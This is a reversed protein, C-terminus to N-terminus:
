LFWRVLVLLLAAAVGATVVRYRGRLEPILVECGYYMIIIRAIVHGMRHSNEDLIPLLPMMVICIILFDLPTSKFGVMRRTLKSVLICLLVLLIFLSEYGWEVFPPQGVIWEDTLFVGYPVIIYVLSKLM